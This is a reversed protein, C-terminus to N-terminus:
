SNDEDGKLRNLIRTLVWELERLNPNDLNNYRTILIEEIESRGGFEVIDRILKDIKKSYVSKKHIIIDTIPHDGPKGNPM